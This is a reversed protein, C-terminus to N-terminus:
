RDSQTNGARYKKPTNEKIAMNAIRKGRDSDENM